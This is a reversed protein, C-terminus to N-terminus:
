FLTTFICFIDELSYDFWIFVGKIMRRFNNMTKNARLIIQIILTTKEKEARMFGKQEM